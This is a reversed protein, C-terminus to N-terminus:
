VYEHYVATVSYSGMGLPVTPDIIQWGADNCHFEAFVHDLDGLPNDSTSAIATLRTRFGVSNGLACLFVAIDDCDGEVYGQNQLDYLM